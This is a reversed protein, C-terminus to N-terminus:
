MQNTYNMNMNVIKNLMKTEFECLTGCRHVRFYSSFSQYARQQTSLIQTNRCLNINTNHIIKALLLIALVM